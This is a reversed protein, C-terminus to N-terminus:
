LDEFIKPNESLIEQINMDLVSLIKLFVQRRGENIHMQVPDNSQTTSYIFCFAALDDMLIKGHVGDFAKTYALKLDYLQKEQDDNSYQQM